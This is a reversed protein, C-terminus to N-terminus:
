SGSLTQDAEPLRGLCEFWPVMASQHHHLISLSRYCRSTKAIVFAQHNEEGKFKQSLYRIALHLSQSTTLCLLYRLIINPVLLLFPSLFQASIFIMHFNAYSPPYGIYQRSILRFIYVEKKAIEQFNIALVSGTREIPFGCHLDLVLTSIDNKHFSDM